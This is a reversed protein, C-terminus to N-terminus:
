KKAAAAPLPYNTILLHTAKRDNRNMFSVTYQKDFPTIQLGRGEYLGSVFDTSKIIMMWKARCDDILYRALREHDTATFPNGAYTSFDSDYPPDLFIFDRETPCKESLFREFDLCSISTQRFRKQLAQSRYYAAKKTLLKSNYGIGGYPVNFEGKANYRFMGSYAYNRIFLFLASQLAPPMDGRRNYLSRYHMYLANKFSTELIDLLDGAPVCGKALELKKTRLLKDAVSKRVEEAFPTEGQPFTAPLISQMKGANLSCYDAVASKLERDTLSGDRCEKYKDLLSVSESFLERAKAWSRDIGDAAEFFAKDGTAIHRYLAVLEGSLDNIYYNRASVAAFVSGGGVFPEYYDNFEDPLNPLIYKLEKEKGGAWKLIPQLLPKGVAAVLKPSQRNEKNERSPVTGFPFFTGYTATEEALVDSKDNATNQMQKIRRCAAAHYGGDIEIGIYRRGLQMAAVGVSGVGMFPDFVIDDPMSAIELIRRLISVPKQAPHKPSSLREPRMCIPSEIFNHMEGQTSFNWVHKKNWCVFIMECSNLFGNKFIKPAPNTKHWIMFTTTDFKHDLCAHWKGIQNYSTFIFLNGNPKLIRVFEDAWDEPHFDVHDWDAVDNNLASRGPLPINGRSHQGINYPPDTLIIDIANDPIRSLYTKSDGHIM